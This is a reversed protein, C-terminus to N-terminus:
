LNYTIVILQPLNDDFVYLIYVGTVFCFLIYVAIMVINELLSLKYKNRFSFPICLLLIFIM